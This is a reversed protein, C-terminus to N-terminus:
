FCYYLYTKTTITGSELTFKFHNIRRYLCTIARQHLRSLEKSLHHSLATNGYWSKLLDYQEEDCICNTFLQKSLPKWDPAHVEIGLKHGLQRDFDVCLVLRQAQLYTQKPKGLADYDGRWGLATIAKTLTDFRVGEITFRISEGKRSLMFGSYVVHLGAAKIKAFFNALEEHVPQQFAAALKKLDEYTEGPMFEQDRHLDFFLAPPSSFPFDYEVCVNEIGYRFCPMPKKFLQDCEGQIFPLVTEPLLARNLLPADYNKNIRCAFDFPAEKRYFHLELMNGSFPPLTRALEIIADLQNHLQGQLSKQISELVPAASISFPAPTATAPTHIATVM